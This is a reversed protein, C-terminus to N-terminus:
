QGGRPVARSYEPRDPNQHTVAGDDIVARNNLIFNNNAGSAHHRRAFGQLAAKHIDAVWALLHALQGVFFPAKKGIGGGIVYRRFSWYRSVPALPEHRLALSAIRLYQIVAKTEPRVGRWLNFSEAAQEVLM